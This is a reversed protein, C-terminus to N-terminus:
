GGTYRLGWVVTYRLGWVAASTNGGSCSYTTNEALSAPIGTSSYTTLWEHVTLSRVGVTPKRSGLSSM